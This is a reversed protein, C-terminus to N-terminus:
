LLNNPKWSSYNQKKNKINKMILSTCPKSENAKHIKPFNKINDPINDSIHHLWAHWLAPVLSPEFYQNHIKNNYIVYRKNKKNADRTKSQFYQNGLYDEGIKNCSLKIILKHLYYM